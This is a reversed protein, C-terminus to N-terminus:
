TYVGDCSNNLTHDLLSHQHTHSVKLSHHSLTVTHPDVHHAHVLSACSQLLHSSFLQPEVQCHPGSNEDLAMNWLLTSQGWNNANGIFLEKMNTIFNTSWPGSWGGGSCETM